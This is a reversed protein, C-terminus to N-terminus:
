ALPRTIHARPMEEIKYKKKYEKLIRKKSADLHVIINDSYLEILNISCLHANIDKREDYTLFEESIGYVSEM